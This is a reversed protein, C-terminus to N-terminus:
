QLLGPDPTSRWRQPSAPNQGSPKSFILSLATWLGFDSVLIHILHDFGQALLPGEPIAHIARSGLTIPNCM